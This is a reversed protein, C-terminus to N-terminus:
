REAGATAKKRRIYVIKEVRAVVLSERDVVDVRFLHLHKAGGATMRVITDIDQQTLVFHARVRGRGPAQFDIAASKDWVLYERPLNHVVMLAFFPDTMAFLSGGFHTGFYNRNTLGLAMEVRVERYDPAIHRVRIGAGVFPPWLNMGFRLLRASM